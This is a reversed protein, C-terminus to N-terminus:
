LSGDRSRSIVERLGSVLRKKRAANHANMAKSREQWFLLNQLLEVVVRNLDTTIVQVTGNFNDLTEYHMGGAFQVLVRITFLRPRQLVRSCRVQKCYNRCQAQLGVYTPNLAGGVDGDEGGAQDSPSGVDPIAAAGAAAAKRLHKKSGCHQKFNAMGCCTVRCVQLTLM